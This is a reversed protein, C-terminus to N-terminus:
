ASVEMVTIWSAPREYYSADNDVVTRNVYFTANNTGGTEIVGISYTIVTGAAQAPSDLYPVIASSSTTSDQDTNRFGVSMNRTVTARSGSATGVNISTGSGGITRRMVIGIDHDEQSSEGCLCSSILFKSNANISTINVTLPSATLTMSNGMSFSSTATVNTAVVQIIGGGGGTPVGSVPIISNVKLQSM